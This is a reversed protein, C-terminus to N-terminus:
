YSKTSEHFVSMIPFMIPNVQQYVFSLSKKFPQLYLKSMFLAPM